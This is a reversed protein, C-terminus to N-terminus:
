GLFIAVTGAVASAAAIGPTGYRSKGLFRVAIGLLAGAALVTLRFQQHQAYGAAITAVMLMAATFKGSFWTLLACLM